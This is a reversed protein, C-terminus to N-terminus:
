SNKRRTPPMDQDGDSWEGSTSLTTGTAHPNCNWRVVIPRDHDADAHVPDNPRQQEAAM